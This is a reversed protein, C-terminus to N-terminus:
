DSYKDVLLLIKAFFTAATTKIQTTKDFYIQVLEGSTKNIKTTLDDYNKQSKKVEDL